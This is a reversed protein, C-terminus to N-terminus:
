DEYEEDVAIIVDVIDAVSLWSWGDDTSVSCGRRNDLEGYKKELKELLAQLIENKVM